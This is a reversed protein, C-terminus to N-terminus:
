DGLGKAMVRALRESFAKADTPREGDLIRAEDYLLFAADTRFSEDASGALSVVLSHAPNIELIPKAAEELRGAAALLREIQRDPGNEPAVLCVASETLRDSARVDAVAEGLAAKVFQVFGSVEASAEAPKEAADPLPIAALDAAGQTVSKFSRGDFAPANAAWFSDVPDSLLLVEIGRARFGELQPSTRLRSLDDGALYYIASQGDKMTGAYDKLSRWAGDSATTRFRSLSLLQERREWDEYIGEKLITGFNEWIKAFAEADSEALKELEKLVRSTVGKKVASLIPSEQIMERSVNLPLDSSDVIGRVFRLWRPLLDADDTIFVRKVYLKVHGKRDPDFLDFPKTGPVFVLASYEHRGEARFHM